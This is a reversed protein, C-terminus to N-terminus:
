LLEVALQIQQELQELDPARDVRVTRAVTLVDVQRAGAALLCKTCAKITAGTTMVDDVLIIHKDRIRAKPNARIAGVLNRLRKLRSMGRQPPTNKVRLLAGPDTKIGSLKSLACCLLASQNYRRQWLRRRHLPVAVLLDAGTFLQMNGAYLWRAFATALHTRDQYKLGHILTASARNYVLVSRAKSYRPPRTICEGCLM